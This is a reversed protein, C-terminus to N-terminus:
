TLFIPKLESKHEQACNRERQNQRRFFLAVTAVAAAAVGGFRFVHM